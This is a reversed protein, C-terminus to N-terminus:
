QGKNGEMIAKLMEGVKKESFALLMGNDAHVPMDLNVLFQIKFRMALRRAMGAAADDMANGLLTTSSAQISRCPPMGIALDGFSGSSGSGSEQSGGMLQAQSLITAASSVWVWASKEMETIQVYVPQQNMFTFTQQHVRMKPQVAAENSLSSPAHSAMVDTM